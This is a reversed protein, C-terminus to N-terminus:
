IDARITIRRQKKESLDRRIISMGEPGSEFFQLAKKNRHEDPRRTVHGYWM